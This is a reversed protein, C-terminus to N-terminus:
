SGNAAIGSAERHREVLLTFVEDFSPRYERSATVQGGGAEIAAIIDPTAAGADQAVFLLERPGRHRVSTVGTIPPLRRLDFPVETEVEIV